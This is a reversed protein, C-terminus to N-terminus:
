SFDQWFFVLSLASLKSIFISCLNCATSYKIRSPPAQLQLKLNRLLWSYFSRSCPENHKSPFVILCSSLLILIGKYLSQFPNEQPQQIYHVADECNLCSRWVLGLVRGKWSLRWEGGAGAGNVLERGKLTPHRGKFYLDYHSGGEM